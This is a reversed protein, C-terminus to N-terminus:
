KLSLNAPQASGPSANKGAHRKPLDTAAPGGSGSLMDNNFFYPMTAFLSFSYAIITRSRRVLTHTRDVLSSNLHATCTCRSRLEFASVPIIKLFDRYPLIYEGSVDSRNRKHKGRSEHPINLSKPVVGQFGRIYEATEREVKERADGEEEVLQPREKVWWKFLADTYLCPIEPDDPMQNRIAMQTIEESGCGSITLQEWFTETGCMPTCTGFFRVWTTHTLKTTGTIGGYINNRSGEDPVKKSWQQLRKDKVEGNGAFKV